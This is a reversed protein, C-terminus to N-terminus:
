QLHESARSKKTGLLVGTSFSLAFGQRNKVTQNDEWIPLIGAFGLAFSGRVKRGFYYRVGIPLNLDIFLADYSFESGAPSSYEFLVGAVNPSASLELSSRKGFLNETSLAIGAYLRRDQEWGILEIYEIGEIVVFPAVAINKFLSKNGTNIAGVKIGATIFQWPSFIIEVKDKVGLRWERIQWFGEYHIPTGMNFYSISVDYSFGPSIAGSRIKFDGMAFIPLIMFLLILLSRKM